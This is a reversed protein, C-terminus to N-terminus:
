SEAAAMARDSLLGIFLLPSASILAAVVFLTPLGFATAVVGGLLAGIPMTGWAVLRYASNVRGLLRDPTVRQRLSVMVVNGMVVTVGSLAFASGIVWPNATMAPTALAVGGLVLMAILSMQRGWWREAPEAVFTGILSGLALSTLLVGFEPESLGMASTSGVAFLVFVSFMASTGLNGLGTLAAMARLVRHRALFRMGEAIDARITTTGDHEPRFSGALLLLVAAAVLWVVSSTALALAAGAAVLLGGLPPGIFENAALEVTYLRGNARSLLKRDVVQPLISQASTDYLTEAVGLLLAAAYLVWIQSVDAALGVAVVALVVARGVNAGIMIRRRDHRDSIAGAQLAFLLWPLREAIALGAIVTPSQTYQIAILPLSIKLIGDALNSLGSSTWLRWYGRGLGTRSLGDRTM